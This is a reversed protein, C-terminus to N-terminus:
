QEWKKAMQKGHFSPVPHCSRLKKFIAIHTSTNHTETMGPSIKQKQTAGTTNQTKTSTSTGEEM